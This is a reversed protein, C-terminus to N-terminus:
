GFIGSQEAVAYTDVWEEHASCTQIIEVMREYEARLVRHGEYHPFRLGAKTAVDRADRYELVASAYKEASRDKLACLVEAQTAWHEPGPENFLLSCEMSKLAVFPEGEEVLKAAMNSFMLSVKFPTPNTNSRILYPWYHHLKALLAPYQGLHDNLADRKADSELLAGAKCAIESKGLKRSEQRLAELESIQVNPGPTKIENRTARSFPSTAAPSTVRFYDPNQAELAEIRQSMRVNSVVRHVVISMALSMPALWLLHWPSADMARLVFAAILQWVWMQGAATLLAPTGDPFRKLAWYIICYSCVVVNLWWFGWAFSSHSPRTYYTYGRIGLAYWVGLMLSSSM